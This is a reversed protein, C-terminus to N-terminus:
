YHLGVTLHSSVQWQPMCTGLYQNTELDLEQIILQLRCSYVQRLLAMIYGGDDVHFLVFSTHIISSFTSMSVHTHISCLPQLTSVERSCQAVHCNVQFCKVRHPLSGFMIHHDGYHSSLWLNEEFSDFSYSSAYLTIVVL